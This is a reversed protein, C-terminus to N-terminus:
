GGNKKIHEILDNIAPRLRPFTGELWERDRANKTSYIETFVKQLRSVLSLIKITETVHGRHYRIVKKSLKQFKSWELFISSSRLSSNAPLTATKEAEEVLIELEEVPSVEQM